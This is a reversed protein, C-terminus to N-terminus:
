LLYNDVLLYISIISLIILIFSHWKYKRSNRIQHSSLEEELKKCYDDMEKIRNEFNGLRSYIKTIDQKTNSIRKDIVEFKDLCFKIQEYKQNLDKNIHLYFNSLEKSLSSQKETILQISKHNGKYKETLNKIDRQLVENQSSISKITENLYNAKKNYNNLEQIFTQQKENVAKISDTHQKIEKGIYGLDKDLLLQNEKLLKISKSHHNVTEDTNKQNDIFTSYKNGLSKVTNNVEEIYDYLFKDTKGKENKIKQVDSAIAEINLLHKNILKVSEKYQKIEKVVSNIDDLLLQNKRISEISVTHHNITKNINEYDKLLTAYKNGLVKVTNSVELIYNHLLKSNKDKDNNIKEVENVIAGLNAVYESRLKQFFALMQAFDKQTAPKNELKKIQEQNLGEM